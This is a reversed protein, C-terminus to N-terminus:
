GHGAREGYMSWPLYNQVNYTMLIASVFGEIIETIFFTMLLVQQSCKLLQLELPEPTYVARWFNPMVKTLQDVWSLVAVWIVM